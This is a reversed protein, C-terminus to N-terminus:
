QSVLSPQVSATRTSRASRVEPEVKWEAPSTPWSRPESESVVIIILETSSYRVSPASTSRSVPQRSTPESRSADEGSRSSSSDRWAPQACVKPRGSSSIEASSACRSKGGIDM